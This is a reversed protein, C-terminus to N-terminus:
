KGRWLVSVNDTPLYGMQMCYAVLAMDFLIPLQWFLNM